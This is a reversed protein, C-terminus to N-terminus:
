RFVRDFVNEWSEKSAKIGALKPLSMKANMAIQKRLEFDYALRSGYYIFDREHNCLFGTVGHEIMYKWGGRNDVVLPTGTHMAEFGIRPWNENTDTPQVIFDVLNYFKRVPLYNHDPYTKIWDYPAGIKKKSNGSFGLFHGRKWKPSVIYEYIHLTNKAFKDSDQRSIRGINTFEQEECKFQLDFPHFYPVFHIFEGKSGLAQLKKKHDELIQPRQYLSFAILNKKAAEKELNFLWTMCNVFITKRTKKAITEINKLFDSGCFNIVADDKKVESFDHPEHYIVGNNVNEQYTPEDEYGSMTPICHVELDKIEKWVLHQHRLEVGAGGYLGSHGYVFLRRM